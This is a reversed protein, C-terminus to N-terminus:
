QEKNESESRGTAATRSKATPAAPMFGNLLPAGYDSIHAIPHLM